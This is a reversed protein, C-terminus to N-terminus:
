DKIAPIIHEKILTWRDSPNMIFESAIAVVIDKEPICCIVNGGDGMASYAFVGEEKFLWWM